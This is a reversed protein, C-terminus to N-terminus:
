IDANQTRMQYRLNLFALLSLVVLGLSYYCQPVGAAKPCIDGQVLEFTVGMAALVFVPLFGASFIPLARKAPLWASIIILSYGALVLYCAPVTAIAPCTGTAFLEAYSLQLGGIFGPLAVLTLVIRWIM